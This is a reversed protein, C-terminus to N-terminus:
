RALTVRANHARFGHELQTLDTAALLGTELFYDGIRRRGRTQARLVVQQQLDSLLRLRLAAEGIKESPRRRSLSQAISEDTLYGLSAAVQGFRPHQRTQWVLAHILQMWPIRGSYYLYEGFRLTRPPLQGHWFHDPPPPESRPCAQWAPRTSPRPPSAPPWHRADRPTAAREHAPPQRNRQGSQLHQLLVRYASEVQGFARALAAPSRGLVAARDPHVEMARQRFRRRVSTVDLRDVFDEDIEPQPGFLVRCATILEVRM